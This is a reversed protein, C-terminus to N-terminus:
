ERMEEVNNSKSLVKLACASLPREHASTGNLFQEGGGSVLNFTPISRSYEAWLSTIAAINNVTYQQRSQRQM